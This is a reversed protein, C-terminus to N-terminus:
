CGVGGPNNVAAALVGNVGSPTQGFILNTTAKSNIGYLYINSPSSVIEYANEQCATSPGTCGGLNDFFDWLGSGYM